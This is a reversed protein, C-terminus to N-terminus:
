PRWQKTRRQFYAWIDHCCFTYLSSFFACSFISCYLERVTTPVAALTKSSLFEIVCKKCIPRDFDNTCTSWNRIPSQTRTSNWWSVSWISGFFSRSCRSFAYNNWQPRESFSSIFFIHHHHHLWLSRNPHWFISRIFFGKEVNAFTAKERYDFEHFSDM